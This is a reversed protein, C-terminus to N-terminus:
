ARGESMLFADRFDAWTRLMRECFDRDIRCAPDAEYARMMEAYRDWAVEANLRTPLQHVRANM